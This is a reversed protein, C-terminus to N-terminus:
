RRLAAPVHGRQSDASADMSSHAHTRCAPQVTTNGATVNIAAGTATPDCGIWDVGGSATFVQNIYGLTNFTVAYYTGPLM